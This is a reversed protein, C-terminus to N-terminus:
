TCVMVPVAAFMWSTVSICFRMRSFSSTVQSTEPYRSTGLRSSILFSSFSKWYLKANVVSQWAKFCRILEISYVSVFFSCSVEETRLLTSCGNRMTLLCIAIYFNNVFFYSYSWNVKVLAFRIMHLLASPAFCNWIHICLAGKKLFDGEFSALIDLFKTCEVIFINIIQCLYFISLILEILWNKRSFPLHSLLIIM